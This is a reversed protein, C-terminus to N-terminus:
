GCPYLAKLAATAAELTTKDLMEPNANLWVMVRAQLGPAPFAEGSPRCYQKNERALDQIMNATSGAYLVGKCETDTEKGACNRVYERASLKLLDGTITTQARAPCMTLFAVVGAWLFRCM